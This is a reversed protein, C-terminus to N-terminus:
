FECLVTATLYHVEHYWLDHNFDIQYKGVVPSPDLAPLKLMRQQEALPEPILQIEAIHLQSM